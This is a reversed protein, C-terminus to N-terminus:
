LMQRLKVFDKETEELWKRKREVMKRYASLAEEKSSYVVAKYM